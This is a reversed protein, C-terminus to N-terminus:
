NKNKQYLLRISSREGYPLISKLSDIWCLLVLSIRINREFYLVLGDFLLLCVNM